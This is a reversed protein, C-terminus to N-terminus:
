ATKDQDLRVAGAPNIGGGFERVGWGYDYKMGSVLPDPIKNGDKDREFVPFIPPMGKVFAFGNNMNNSQGPQSYQMYTYAMNLGTKLWSKVDHSLNSRVNMRKFRSQIYFGKDDRLSFSTYYNSNESAGSFKVGAEYM